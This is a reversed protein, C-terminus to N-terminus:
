PSPAVRVRAPTQSIAEDNCFYRMWILLARPSVALPAIWNDVLQRNAARWEWFDVPNTHVRHFLQELSQKAAAQEAPQLRLASLDVNGAAFFTTGHLGAAAIASAPVDVNANDKFHMRFDEATWDDVGYNQRSCLAPTYASLLIFLSLIFYRM